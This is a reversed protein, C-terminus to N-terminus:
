PKPGTCQRELTWGHEGFGTLMAAMFLSAPGAVILGISFSQYVPCDDGWSNNRLAANFMGAAAIGSGFWAAIFIIRGMMAQTM